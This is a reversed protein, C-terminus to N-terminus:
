ELARSVARVRQWDIQYPSTDTDSASLEKLYAARADSAPHTSAFTLAHTLSSEDKAARAFFSVMGRLPVHARRLLEVGERDAQEEQGRSYSLAILDPALRGLASDSSIGLVVSFLTAIGLRNGLNELGHRHQVHSLEHALVGALEEPSEAQALFGTYVVIQGGPYAFANVEPSTVVHLTIRYPSDQIAALLPRAVETVAANLTPDPSVHASHELTYALDGLRAEWSPPCRMLLVRGLATGGQVLAFLTVAVAGALLCGHVFVRGFSRQRECCEFLDERASISLYPALTRAERLPVQLQTQGEALAFVIAGNGAQRDHPVQLAAFPYIREGTAGSLVLGRTADCQAAVREPPSEVSLLVASFWVPSTEAM